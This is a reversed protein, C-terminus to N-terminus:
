LLRGSSEVALWNFQACVHLGQESHIRKLIMGGNVCFPIGNMIFQLASQRWPISAIVRRPINQRGTHQGCTYLNLYVSSYSQRNNQIPTCSPSEYQPLFTPQPHEIIRHQLPYKPRLPVLYCPLPSSYVALLKMIRAGRWIINPHDFSSSHSPCPM